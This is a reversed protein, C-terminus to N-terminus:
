GVFLVGEGTHMEFMWSGQCRLDWVASTVASRESLITVSRALSCSPVCMWVTIFLNFSPLVFIHKQVLWGQGKDPLMYLILIMCIEKRWVSKTCKVLRQGTIWEDKWRNKKREEEAKCTASSWATFCTDPNYADKQPVEVGCCHCRACILATYILQMITFRFSAVTVALWHTMLQWSCVIWSLFLVLAHHSITFFYDM